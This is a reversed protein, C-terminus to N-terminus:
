RPTSERVPHIRIWVHARRRLIGDNKRGKMGRLTKERLDALFRENIMGQLPILMKSRQHSTDISDAASLITMGLSTSSRWPIGDNM